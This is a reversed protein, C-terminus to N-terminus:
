CHNRNTMCFFRLKNETNEWTENEDEEISDVRINNKRSCDEQIRLQEKLEAKNESVENQISRMQSKLTNLKEEVLNQNVTLSEELYRTNDKLQKISDYNSKIEQSLNNLRENFMKRNKETMSSISKEHADYLESIKKYQEAFMDTFTKKIQKM